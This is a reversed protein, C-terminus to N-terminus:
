DNIRVSQLITQFANEFNRENQPAVAIMYFLQGNRLQTTIVRVTEPRGTAENINSLTAFLANRGSMTTRQFGGSTRLNNNGQALSNILEQSASQLNRSNTQAVGFSAGHTFVAQGNYQGYAGEPVFWVSNNDNIQRWNNPVSVSVGGNFISYNEYRSSPYAVRGTPPNNPYNNNPYNGTNEGVPYRQGSRQIEAMTPARQYGRLREQIRAFERSDSRTDTNVHLLQAERNIRAYRDSPSPHDSLFGGGGGGQREITRFMNALDRPDYGARAMIQAGLVDAETEYERSFKLLYVGFPAQALQGVGPGGLITGAIGAIGALLGYKQGKTAQATGHRLAVHSLEHAMVGAMEGETRAAEIMGRNVYMPGGPLAFANIDSANVVKFYYQFEPHQFESPIAAVLRNGVSEVYSRVTEDRLLPFQSEAEQAAQRGLKVDDQVSFRNSHYKIQTGQALVTFPMVSIAVLAIWAVLARRKFIIKNM